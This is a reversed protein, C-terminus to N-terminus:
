LMSYCHLVFYEYEVSPKLSSFILVFSVYNIISLTDPVTNNQINESQYKDLRPFRFNLQNFIFRPKADRDIESIRLQQFLM